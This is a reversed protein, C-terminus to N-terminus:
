RKINSSTTVTEIPFVKFLLIADQTPKVGCAKPFEKILEINDAFNQYRSRNAIFYTPNDKASDRLQASITAKGGIIAVQRNKDLYIQLGDPLTGFSGETGVVVFHKKSEEDLFKAIEKLGYGATWDELYGRRENKPLNAKTPDTLLFFNFLLTLPLILLLFILSVFIHRQYAQKVFKSFDFRRIKLNKLYDILKDLFWAGLVILPPISFLIYRATFTKLFAMQIVMPILSWLAVVIAIKEMNKSNKGTIVSFFQYIILGLGGLILLLVPTTLLRMFWDSIDRLHPIFPDLPRGILDVPSFVYDQNRANLSNFGPGLRLVNYIGMTILVSIAWLGFLKLFKNQRFKDKWSFIVLTAPLSLVNFFGPPKTLLGGGLFYGLVMALDIRPFKVLLLSLNLTWITFFALMSDVLAMRDFFVIYPTIAMLFAAWLGVRKNFFYWGLFLVGLLTGFGSIVSLFRGAFLPDDFIKFMPAMVWMYLPTKGDSQPLFRLTPEAKMVQAWRVYIAEDAFIPQLTLNPLRLAFYVSTIILFVIIEIKFKKLLRM